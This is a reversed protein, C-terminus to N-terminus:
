KFTEVEVWENRTDGEWIMLHIKSEIGDKAYVFPEEKLIEVHKGTQLLETKRKQAKKKLDNIHREEDKDFVRHGFEATGQKLKRDILEVVASHASTHLMRAIKKAVAKKPYVEYIKLWRLLTKDDAEQGLCKMEEMAEDSVKWWEYSPVLYKDPVAPYSCYNLPPFEALYSLKLEQETCYKEGLYERKDRLIALRYEM